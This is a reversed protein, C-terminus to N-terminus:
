QPHQATLTRVWFLTFIWQLELCTENPRLRDAPDQCRGLSLAVYRSQDRVFTAFWYKRQQLKRWRPFRVSFVKHRRGQLIKQGFVKTVSSRKTRLGVRILDRPPNKEAVSGIGSAFWPWATCASPLLQPMQWINLNHLTCGSPPWISLEVEMTQDCVFFPRGGGLLAEQQLCVLPLAKWPRVCHLTKIVVAESEVNPAVYRWPMFYYDRSLALIPLNDRQAFRELCLRPHTQFHASQTRQPAFKVTCPQALSYNNGFAAVVM